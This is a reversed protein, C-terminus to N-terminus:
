KEISKSRTAHQKSKILYKANTLDGEFSEFSDDDSFTNEQSGIDDYPSRFEVDNASIASWKEGPTKTYIVNFTGRDTSIDMIRCVWWESKAKEKVPDILVSVVSGVVLTSKSVKM